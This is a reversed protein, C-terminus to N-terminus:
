FRIGHKRNITDWREKENRPNRERREKAVAQALKLGKLGALAKFRMSSAVTDSREWPYLPGYNMRRPKM